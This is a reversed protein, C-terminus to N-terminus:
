VSPLLFHSITVFMVHRTNKAIFEDSHQTATYIQLIHRCSIKPARNIKNPMYIAKPKDGTATPLYYIKISSQKSKHIKKAAILRELNKEGLFKYRTKTRKQRICIKAAFTDTSSMPLFLTESPGRCSPHCILTSWDTRRRTGARDTLCLHQSRHHLHGPTTAGTQNSEWPELVLGM